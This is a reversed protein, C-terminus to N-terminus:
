RRGMAVLCQVLSYTVEPNNTLWAERGELTRLFLDAGTHTCRTRPFIWELGLHKLYRQKICSSQLLADRPCMKSLWLVVKFGVSMADALSQAKSLAAEWCWTQVAMKRQYM